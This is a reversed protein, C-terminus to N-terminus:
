DAPEGLRKETSSNWETKVTSSLSPTNICRRAFATNCDSTEKRQSPSFMAAADWCLGVKQAWFFGGQKTQWRRKLWRRDQRAPARALWLVLRLCLAPSKVTILSIRTWLPSRSDFGFSVQARIFPKSVRSHLKRQAIFTRIWTQTHISWFSKRESATIKKQQM